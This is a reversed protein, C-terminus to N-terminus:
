EHTFKDLLRIPDDRNIENLGKAANVPNSGTFAAQVWRKTVRFSKIIKQLRCPEPKPPPSPNQM